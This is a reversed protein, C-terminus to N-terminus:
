GHGAAPPRGPQRKGPQGRPATGAQEVPNAHGADDQDHVQQIAAVQQDVRGVAREVRDIVM